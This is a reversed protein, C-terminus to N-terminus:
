GRAVTEYGPEEAEALLMQSSPSRLLFWFGSSNWEYLSTDSCSEAVPWEKSVSLSGVRGDYNVDAKVAKIYPYPIGSVALGKLGKLVDSVTGPWTEPTYLDHFAVNVSLADIYFPTADESTYRSPVLPPGYRLLNNLLTLLTRFGAGPQRPWGDNSRFAETSFIRINVRLDFPRGRRVHGPLHTFTPYFTYGKVMLDLEVNAKQTPLYLNETLEDWLQRNVLAVM